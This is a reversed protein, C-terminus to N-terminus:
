SQAKFLRAVFKPLRRPQGVDVKVNAAMEPGLPPLMPNSTDVRVRMSVPPVIQMSYGGTTRSGFSAKSVSEVIGHWTLAPYSPVNITAAQGPQIRTLDTAKPTADVWVKDTDVLYFATAYPALYKGILFGPVATVTGSFPAKVATEDLARQAEQLKAKAKLYQPTEAVLMGPKGNTKASVMQAQRRLESLDALDSQLKYRSRDYEQRATESGNSTLAYQDLSARDVQVMAEEIAVAGMAQDYTKKESTLEVATLLLDTAAEDLAIEFPQPDLRYLVQGRTVRQNNAVDVDFVRGPIEASIGVYRTSVHAQDASITKGGVYLMAGGIIGIPILVFMVSRLDSQGRQGSRRSKESRSRLFGDSPSRADDAQPSM